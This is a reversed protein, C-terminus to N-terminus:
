WLLWDHFHLYIILEMVAIPLHFFWRLCTFRITLQLVQLYVYWMCRDMMPYGVGGPGWGILSGSSCADDGLWPINRPSKPSRLSWSHCRNFSLPQPVSGSVLGLGLLFPDDELWGNKLPSSHTEPLTLSNFFEWCKKTSILIVLWYINIYLDSMLTTDVNKKPPPNLYSKFIRFVCSFYSDYCHSLTM